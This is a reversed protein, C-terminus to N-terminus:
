DILDISKDITVEKAIKRIIKDEKELDNDGSGGMAEIILKNYQDSFASDSKGCDPHKEKFQPLLRSNKNAIKKIVKRLKNKEENEKEWKDEDKIYMVERKSDSCHVPRKHVDLAKLNKVIINSIGEIYGLKGVAELDALQLKLSDVFDMINMADKCQENLFVNLNFTKNHSNISSNSINTSNTNKCIDVIKNTLEQNQKVVNMVMNTLMKIDSNASQEKEMKNICSKGSKHRSLGSSHNYSKGCECYFLEANKQSFKNDNNGNKNGNQNNKHKPRLIHRQWDCGKSCKYDCGECFYKETNKPTKKNGNNGDTFIQSETKKKHNKTIIHAKYQQLTDCQIKCIECCNQMKDVYPLNSNLENFHDQEKIRAEESNKLKYCAIEVMEWNEWGGNERITKYINLNNSLNNCCIKHQYKRKIFSTTHGVYVETISQIKCIIKYIITNSYDIENKPM